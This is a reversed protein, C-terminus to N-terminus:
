YYGALGIFSQIDRVKKPTPFSKVANLKAPDPLIGNESIIHGLYTVEKRLFECKDIQLVEILRKDHEQLSAGYVVIDDLYVLCRIGQLGAFVSNMLRQFTAPANKLGFPMRNFEYHGYPTSFATKSKDKERMALFQNGGQDERV